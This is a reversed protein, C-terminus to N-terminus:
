QRKPPPTTSPPGSKIGESTEPTGAERIAAANRPRAATAAFVSTCKIGTAGTGVVIM